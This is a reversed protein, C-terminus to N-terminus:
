RHGPHGGAGSPSSPASRSSSGRAAENRVQPGHGFSEFAPAAARPAPASPREYSRPAPMTPRPAPPRESPAAPVAPREYPPRPAPMAAGPAPRSEQPGLTPQPAHASTASPPFGRYGRGGAQEGGYRAATAADRYPVGARHLPDHHWPAPSSRPNPLRPPHGPRWHPPYVVIGHGPWDCGYWGWPEFFGIGFGFGIFAGGLFVGPPVGFDYPPYGAWPWPGYIAPVYYPVYVVDPNTPAITIVDQDTTVTQQPTSQLAGQALARQRLRQVADMVEAPQVLFADGLQETWELDSDMNRLVAAFPVLSKVSADWRQEELAAALADGTLAAHAPDDLWRAAEVVELPYTSAALISGLLPDPYLAIPAALQELQASTWHTSWAPAPASGVPPAPQGASDGVTALALLAAAVGILTQRM